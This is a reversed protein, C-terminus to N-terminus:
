RLQRMLAVRIRDDYSSLPLIEINNTVSDVGEVRQAAKEVMKKMVPRYVDGSLEVVGDNFEFQVNDFISYYPLKVIQKRVQEAIRANDEPTAAWLNLSSALLLAAGMAITRTSRKM